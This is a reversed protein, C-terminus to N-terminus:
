QHASRANAQEIDMVIVIRQIRATIINENDKITNQHIIEIPNCSIFDM